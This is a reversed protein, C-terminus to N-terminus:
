TSEKSFSFAAIAAELDSATLHVVTQMAIAHWCFLIPDTICVIRNKKIKKNSKSCSENKEGSGVISFILGIDM